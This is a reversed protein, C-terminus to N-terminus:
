KNKEMNKYKTLMKKCNKSIAEQKIEGTEYKELIYGAMTQFGTMGSTVYVDKISSVELRIDHSPGGKAQYDSYCAVKDIDGCNFQYKRGFRTRVKILSGEVKVYFMILRTIWFYIMLCPLFAYVIIGVPHKLITHMKEFFAAICIFELFLLGVSGYVINKRIYVVKFNNSMM